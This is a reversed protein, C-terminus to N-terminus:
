NPELHCEGGFGDGTNVLSVAAGLGELRDADLRTEIDGELIGVRVDSGLEVITRRRPATKGAGPSSMLNVVRLGAASNRSTSRTTVLGTPM